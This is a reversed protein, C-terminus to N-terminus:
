KKEGCPVPRKTKKIYVPHWDKGDWSQVIGDKCADVPKTTKIEPAPLYTIAAVYVALILLLFALFGPSGIDTARRGIM